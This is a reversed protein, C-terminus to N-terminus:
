DEKEEDAANNNRRNRRYWEEDDDEEIYEGSGEEMIASATPMMSYDVVEVEEADGVNQKDNDLQGDLEEDHAYLAPIEPASYLPKNSYTDCSYDWKEMIKSRICSDKSWSTGYTIPSYILFVAIVVTIFMTAVAFKKGPQLNRTLLDFTAAFALIGFYLAPMYHHLFLQRDMLQFPLLHLAWGVIFYGISEKFFQGTIGFKDGYGRQDRLMLIGRVFFYSFVAWTTSWYVIPNGLLYIQKEGESWMSIGRQLIPWSPPRSGYPHDETLASNSTWMVQNLELFKDWFGPHDYTVREAEEPLLPHETEEIYWLTKPITGGKICTVEQQEFGWKPLKVKHSFLACGENYHILRFVTNIAKLREGADDDDSSHEYIEVRWYDNADGDFDPFGYGSVEDHYEVDTVSPRVDHSHLKIPSTTVHELRIIDGDQVFELENDSETYNEGGKRIKWLNNDDKHSYLTVQQQESGSVYRSPHSHLYGGNTNLHRISVVSGYAVDICSNGSFTEVQENGTLTEQFAPSMHVDGDGHFPLVIFHIGFTFVYIMAPLVILCLARYIFHRGFATPSVALDGWLEWLAKITSGGVTAATFLGVWKSSVSCGLGIGTLALWRKWPGSFPKLRPDSFKAWAYITFTIFFLLPPDLLILRNNAILGNEFCTLAAAILGAPTSHGSAKVTLYAIPITLVGLIGCFLRMAVYPVESELYDKGITSFDFNGDYGAVSGVGAILLKALPPHVDFFFTHNIYKGAFHGFHVEDFVVSTPEWIKYLRVVCAILTIMSAVQADSFRQSKQYELLQFVYARYNPTTGLKAKVTKVKLKESM